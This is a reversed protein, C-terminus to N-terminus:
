RDDASRDAKLMWLSPRKPRILKDTTIPSNALLQLRKAELDHGRVAWGRPSRPPDVLARGIVALARTAVNPRRLSALAPADNSVMRRKGLDSSAVDDQM